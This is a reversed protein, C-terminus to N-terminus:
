KRNPFLHSDGTKGNKNAHAASSCVRSPHLITAASTEVQQQFTLASNALAALKETLDNPTQQQLHPLFRNRIWNRRYHTQLNSADQRWALNNQRCYSEIEMRRIHLMPRIWSLGNRQTVPRIGALGAFATGRLLRFLVTEAQDDKHHATAIYKCGTRHAICELAELRLQRAATEISLKNQAAYSQVNIQEVFLPINWDICLQAVFAEDDDSEKGRLHHNIHACIIQSKLNSIKSSEQSFHYSDGTKTHAAFSCVRSFLHLMALSDAGGSVAALIKDGPNFSLTKLFNEVTSITHNM